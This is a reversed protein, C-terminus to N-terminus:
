IETLLKNITEPDKAQRLKELLIKSNFGEALKALIQLHEETSEEPVILAFILNVPQHDIADFDIGNQLQIFAGITKDTTNLRAHPIAVGKGLGTSGLKERAILSNFIDMYAYSSDVSALMKSLCELAAKKSEVVKNCLIRDLSIIESIQM